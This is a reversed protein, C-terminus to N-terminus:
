GKGFGSTLLNLLEGNWWRTKCSQVVTEPAEGARRIVLLYSPGDTCPSVADPSTLPTSPPSYWVEARREPNKLMRELEFAHVSGVVGGETRFAPTWEDHPPPTWGTPVPSPPPEHPASPAHWDHEARRWEWKGSVNRWLVVSTDRGSFSGTVVLDITVTAGAPPTPAMNRWIADRLAEIREHVQDIDLDDAEKHIAALDAAAYSDPDVEQVEVSAISTCGALLGCLLLARLTM